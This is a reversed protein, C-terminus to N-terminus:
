LPTTTVIHGPWRTQITAQFENQDPMAMNTDINCVEVVVKTVSPGPPSQGDMLFLTTSQAQPPEGNPLLKQAAWMRFDASLLIQDQGIARRAEDIAAENLQPYSVALERVIDRLKDPTAMGGEIDVAHKNFAADAKQQLEKAPSLKAASLSLSFLLTYHTASGVVWLPFEPCKYRSGVTLYRNAELQSLYGVEVRADDPVGTVLLGTEPNGGAYESGDCVYSTARGILMLNLLEQQCHGFRGVLLADMEDMEQAVTGLGRTALVSYVFSMVSTPQRLLQELHNAYFQQVDGITDFVRQYMAPASPNGGTSASIVIYRSASTARFMVYCLADVLSAEREDDNPFGNPFPFETPPRNSFLLFRLMFGGVPALVGCPGGSRQVLGFRSIPADSFTFAQNEWRGYDDNTAATGFVREFLAQADGPPVPAMGIAAMGAPSADAQRNRRQSAGPPYDWRDFRDSAAKQVTPGTPAPTPSAAPAPRPSTALAEASAWLDRSGLTMGQSQLAREVVALMEGKGSSATTTGRLEPTTNAVLWIWVEESVMALMSQRLEEDEFLNQEPAGGTPAPGPAQGLSLAIAM